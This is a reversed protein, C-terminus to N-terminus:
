TSGLELCTGSVYRKSSAAYADVHRTIAKTVQRMEKRLAAAGPFKPAPPEPEGQFDVRLINSERAIVYRSVTAM